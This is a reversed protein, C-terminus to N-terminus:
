LNFFLLCTAEIVFLFELHFISFPEMPIEGRNKENRRFLRFLFFGPNQSPSKLGLVDM